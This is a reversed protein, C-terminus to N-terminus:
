EHDESFQGAYTATYTAIVSLLGERAQDVNVVSRGYDSSGLGYGFHTGFDSVLVFTSVLVDLVRSTSYRFSCFTADKILPCHKM